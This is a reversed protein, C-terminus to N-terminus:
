LCTNVSNHLRHAGFYGVCLFCAGHQFNKKNNGYIKIIRLHAISVATFGMCAVAHLYSFIKFPRSIHLKKGHVM